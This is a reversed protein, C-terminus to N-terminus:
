LLHFYCLIYIIYIFILLKKKLAQYWVATQQLDQTEEPGNRLRAIKLFATISTGLGSVSSYLHEAM